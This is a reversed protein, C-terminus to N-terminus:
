PSRCYFAVNRFENLVELSSPLIATSINGIHFEEPSYLCICQRSESQSSVTPAVTHHNGGAQQADFAFRGQVSVRSHSPTKLLSLPFPSLQPACAPAGRATGATTTSGATRVACPRAGTCRCRMFFVRGYFVGCPAPDYQLSADRQDNNTTRTTM